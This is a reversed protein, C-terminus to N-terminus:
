RQVTTSRPVEVDVEVEVEFDVEVDGLRDNGPTQTACRQADSTSSGGLRRNPDYICGKGSGEQAPKLM